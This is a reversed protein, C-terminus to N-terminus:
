IYIRVIFKNNTNKNNIVIITNELMSNFDLM